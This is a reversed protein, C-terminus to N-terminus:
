KKRKLDYFIGASFSPAAIINRAHLAFGVEGMIGFGHKFRYMVQPSIGFYELNNSYIGPYKSDPQSGNFLSSKSDIKLVAFFKDKRNYGIEGGVRIEDSYNNTRNNFGAYMTAWYNKKFGKSIDFRLMQSFDDDGLHLEKTTGSRYDGSNIGAWLSVSANFGKKELFRYKLALDIDGIGLAKDKSYSNGSSDIGSQQTVATVFPSYVIACFRNTLGYEGYINTTMVTALPSAIIKAYPNAFYGGGIYRQSLMFFGEGKKPTWGGGAILQFPGIIMVLILLQIKM